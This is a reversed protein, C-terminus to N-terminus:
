TVIKTLCLFIYLFINKEVTLFSKRSLAKLVLFIRIFFSKANGGVIRELGHGFQGDDGKKEHNDAVNADGDSRTCRGKTCWDWRYVICLYVVHPSYVTISIFHTKIIIVSFQVSLCM